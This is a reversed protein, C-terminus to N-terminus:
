RHHVVFQLVVKFLGLLEELVLWGMAFIPSTKFVSTSFEITSCGRELPGQHISVIPVSYISSARWGFLSALTLGVICDLHDDPLDWAHQLGVVSLWEHPVIAPVQVQKGM